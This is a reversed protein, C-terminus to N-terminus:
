FAGRRSHRSVGEVVINYGFADTKAVKIIKAMTGVRYIDKATPEDLEPKHQSVIGVYSNNKIAEEILQVTKKRGVTLPMIAGPFFVSNRLPVIALSTIEKKDKTAM